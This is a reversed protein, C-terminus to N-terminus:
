QKIRERNRVANEKKQRTEKKKRKWEIMWNNVLENM